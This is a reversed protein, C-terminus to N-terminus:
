WQRQRSLTWDPRHAIMNHLRQKGWAPYFTTAEIGDLAITIQVVVGHVMGAFWASFTFGSSDYLRTSVGRPKSI